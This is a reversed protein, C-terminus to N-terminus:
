ICAKFERDSVVALVPLGTWNEAHEKTDLTDNIYELVFAVGVSGLLGVLIGLAINVLKRPKVPKPNVSAEQVVGVNSV